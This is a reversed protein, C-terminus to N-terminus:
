RRRTKGTKASREAHLAMTATRIQGMARTVAHWDDLFLASPEGGLITPLAAAAGDAIAYVRFLFELYGGRAFGDTIAPGPCTRM